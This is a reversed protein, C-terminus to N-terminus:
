VGLGESHTGYTPPSSWGPVPGELGRVRPNIVLGGPGQHSGQPHELVHPSLGDALLRWSAMERGGGERSPLKWYVAVWRGRQNGRARPGEVEWRPPEQAMPCGGRRGDGPGKRQPGTPDPVSSAVGQQAQM